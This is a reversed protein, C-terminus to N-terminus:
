KEFYVIDILFVAGLLISKDKASLERSFKIGFNDATKLIKGCEKGNNLIKFTRPRFIHGILKYIEKGESNFVLYKKRLASFCRQTKGLFNGKSDFINIHHFYFCFPKVLKLATLGKQEVINITFPRFAKLFFRLCAIFFNGHEEQAYYIKEGATTLISYRNKTEFQKFIESWEKEQKVKLSTIKELQKM